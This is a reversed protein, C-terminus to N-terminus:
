GGIQAKWENLLRSWLTHAKTVAEEPPIQHRYAQTMLSDLENQSTNRPPPLAAPKLYQVLEYFSALGPTGVFRRALDVRSMMWGSVAHLQGQVDDSMLHAILAWALDPHKSATPIALGNVFALAVPPRDLSHRPAFLGVQSRLDGEMDITANRFDGPNTTSMAVAGAGIGGGAGPLESRRVENLEVLLRAASLAEPRNLNSRFNALDVPEIGTQHIYSLMEQAGGWLNIGRVAVGTGDANLRTLRRTYTVLEDWSQPPREPDFGAESFVTKNYIIARLDFYFPMVYVRRAWSQTEWVPAPIARRTPWKALYPDLPRFLGAGGEQYPSYYGTAVVDPSVGSAILITLRDTREGWGIAEITVRANHKAEFEPLVASRLTDLMETSFGVALFHLETAARARAPVLLCLVLGCVWAVARLRRGCLREMTM